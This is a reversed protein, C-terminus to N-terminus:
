EVKPAEDGRKNEAPKEDKAGKQAHGKGGRKEHKPKEDKLDGESKEKDGKEVKEKSEGEEAAKDDAEATVTALVGPKQIPECHTDMDGVVSVNASVSYHALEVGLPNEPMGHIRVKFEVTPPTYGDGAEIRTPLMTHIGAHDHWIKADARVNASGTGPVFKASGAVYKLDPPLVYDTAMNFIYHLGMHTIKGSPMSEIRVVFPKNAHHSTPMTVKAVLLQDEGHSCHLKLKAEQTESQASLPTSLCISTFMLLITLNLSKSM